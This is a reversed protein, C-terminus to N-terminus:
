PIDRRAHPNRDHMPTVGAADHATWLAWLRDFEVRDFTAPEVTVAEIIRRQLLEVLLAPKHATICERYPTISVGRRTQFRLDDGALSLRVGAAELEVLLARASV